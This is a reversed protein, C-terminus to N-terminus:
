PNRAPLRALGDATIARAHHWLGRLVLDPALAVAGDGHQALLQSALAPGHGGSLVLLPQVGATERVRRMRRDILGLQADLIGTRIADDTHDPHRAYAGSALPLRATGRALGARMLEIGPAIVGGCFTGDPLIADATTATGASVVLLARHPFRARAGILAHWRDAGLSAPERYANHVRIQDHAFDSTALLWQAKGAGAAALASELAAIRAPTTVACGFVAAPADRSGTTASLSCARALEGGLDADDIAISGRYIPANADADATSDDPWQALLAPVLAWKLASNGADLLLWSM